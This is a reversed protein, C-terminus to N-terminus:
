YNGVGKITSPRPFSPLLANCRRWAQPAAYLTPDGTGQHPTSSLDKAPCQLLVAVVAPEEGVAAAAEAVRGAVDVELLPGAEESVAAAARGWEEPPPVPAAPSLEDAPLGAEMADVTQKGSKSPPGGEVATAHDRASQAPVEAGAGDSEPAAALGPAGETAAAEQAQPAEEACYFEVPQLATRALVKAVPALPVLPLCPTMTLALDPVLRDTVSCAPVGASASRVPSASENAKICCSAPAGGASPAAPAAASSANPVEATLVVIEEEPAVYVVEEVM